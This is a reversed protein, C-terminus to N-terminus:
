FGAAELGSPSQCKQLEPVTSFLCVRVCVCVSRDPIRECKLPWEPQVRLLQADARIHPCSESRCVGAAAAAAPSVDERFASPKHSREEEPCRQPTTEAAQLVM